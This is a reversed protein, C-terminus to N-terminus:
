HPLVLGDVTFQNIKLGQCILLIVKLYPKKIVRIVRNEMFDWKVIEVNVPQSRVFMKMIDM